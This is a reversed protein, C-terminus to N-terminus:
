LLRSGFRFIEVEQKIKKKRCMKTPKGNTFQIIMGILYPLSPDDGIRNNFEPPEGHVIDGARGRERRVMRNTFPLNCRKLRAYPYRTWLDEVMPSVMASCADLDYLVYLVM